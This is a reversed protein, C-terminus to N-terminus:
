PVYYQIILKPRYAAGANGSYFKLYDNGHDDNDDKAFRLRIQTLGEKNIYPFIGSTWTKIYWDSRPKKPIVGVNNKSPKAQFDGLQLANTSGFHGTRIDVLLKGHTNFPTTGVIGRQKIRLTVRTIVANDPLGTTNFSLISRYQKDAGNDGVYFATGASNMTGGKGSTEGSELVWGDQAAQSRFTHTQTPGPTPGSWGALRAMLWWFAQAKLKCQLPHSHDCSSPLKQCDTPHSTCWDSCWECADSASPYFNGAPDYSEIDAFDFLIKENANVYSRVADNNRWLVGGPATGDTHGTFYIFGVSPYEHELQNLTTLYTNVQSTTYSSMQGCWTWLSFEFKGTRVVSRTHNIGNATEWYMDPTIYNNGGYNNGDYFRLATNDWVGDLTYVIDINNKSNVSELKELGSLIQGGHSTHAYHVALKKAQNIWYDPIQGIDTNRHNVIIPENRTLIRPIAKATTVAGPVLFILLTALFGLYRSM